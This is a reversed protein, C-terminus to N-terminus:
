RWELEQSWMGEVDEGNRGQIWLCEIKKEITRQFIRIIAALTNRAKLDLVRNESCMKSSCHINDLKTCGEIKGSTNKEKAKSMNM